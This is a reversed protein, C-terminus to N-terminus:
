GSEYQNKNSIMKHIAKKKNLNRILKRRNWYRSNIHDSIGIYFIIFKITKSKPTIDNEDGVVLGNLVVVAYIRFRPALTWIVGNGSLTQYYMVLYYNKQRTKQNNVSLIHKLEWISETKTKQLGRFDRAESDTVIGIRENWWALGKVIHQM